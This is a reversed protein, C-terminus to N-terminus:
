LSIMIRNTIINDVLYEVLYNFDKEEHNEITFNFYVKGDVPIKTYHSSGAFYLASFAEPPKPYFVILSIVIIIGIVCAILIANLIGEEEDKM